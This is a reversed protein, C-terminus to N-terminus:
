GIKDSAFGLFMFNTTVDDGMDPNVRDMFDAMEERHKATARTREKWYDITEVAYGQKKMLVNEEIATAVGGGILGTGLAKFGLGRASTMGTAAWSIYPQRMVPQVAQSLRSFLPTAFRGRSAMFLVTGTMVMLLSVGNRTVAADHPSMGVDNFTHAMPSIVKAALEDGFVGKNLRHFLVGGNYFLYGTPKTKAKADRAAIHHADLVDGDTLYPELGQEKKYAIMDQEILPIRSRFTQMTDSLDHPAYRQVADQAM